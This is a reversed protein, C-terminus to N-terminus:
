LQFVRATSLPQRQKSVNNGLTGEELLSFNDDNNKPPAEPKLLQIPVPLFEPEKATPLLISKLISKGFVHQWNRKIGMDYAHYLARRGRASSFNSHFEITTQATSILYLHFACLLLVAVGVSICIMFTFLVSTEQHPLPVFLFKDNDQAQDQVGRMSMIQERYLAGNLNLFARTSIALGYVMGVTVYM